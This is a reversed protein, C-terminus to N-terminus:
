ALFESLKTALRDAREISKLAVQKLETTKAITIDHKEIEVRCLEQGQELDKQVQSFAAITSEILGNGNKTVKHFLKFM